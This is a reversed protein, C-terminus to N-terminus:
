TKNKEHAMDSSSPSETVRNGFIEKNFNGLIEQIPKKERSGCRGDNDLNCNDRLQPGEPQKEANM